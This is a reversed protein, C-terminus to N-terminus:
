PEGYVNLVRGCLRVTGWEDEGYANLVRGCLWWDGM